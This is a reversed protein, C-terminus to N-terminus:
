TGKPGKVTVENGDNVTIECNSPITIAKNGIRSM